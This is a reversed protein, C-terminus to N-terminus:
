TCLPRFCGTGLPLLNGLLVNQKLGRLFDIQNQLAARSLIRTTEQFSAASLFSSTELSTKTIGIFLPEYVVQNAFSTEQQIKMMWQLAVIEGYLLGTEGPELIFVNSTMQRVIIEIHKDSIYVGQGCYIRQINNIVSKQLNQLYQLIPMQHHEKSLLSLQRFSYKSKKRAEFIEEIKPIGQVIDGTKSQQYFVRCIPQNKSLIDGHHRHLISQDNLLHINAKRFLVNQQTKAILQGSTFTSQNTFLREGARIFDGLQMNRKQFLTMNQRSCTSTFDQNLSWYNLNMMTRQNPFLIPRFKRINPQFHGTVLPRCYCFIDSLTLCVPHDHIIEGESFPLYFRIFFLKELCRPHWEKQFIHLAKKQFHGRNFWGFDQTKFFRLTLPHTKELVRDLSSGWGYGKYQPHLSMLSIQFKKRYSCIFIFPMDDKLPEFRLSYRKNTTKTSLRRNHFRQLVTKIQTFIHFNPHISQPTFHVFGKQHTHFFHFNDSKSHRCTCVRDEWPLYIKKFVHKRGMVCHNQYRQPILFSPSFRLTYNHLNKPQAKELQHFGDELTSSKKSIYEVYFNEFDRSRHFRHTKVRKMGLQKLQHIKYQHMFQTEKKLVCIHYLPRKPRKQSFRMTFNKILACNQVISAYAKISGDLRWKQLKGSLIQCNFPFNKNHFFSNELLTSGETLSSPLIKELFFSAKGNSLRKRKGKKKKSSLPPWLTWLANTFPRLRTKKDVFTKMYTPWQHTQFFNEQDGFFNWRDKTSPQTFTEFHFKQFHKKFFRHHIFLTSLDSNETNKLSKNLIFIERFGQVFFLSYFTSPLSPQCFLTTMEFLSHILGKKQQFKKMINQYFLIQLSVLFQCFQGNPDCSQHDLPSSIQLRKFGEVFHIPFKQQYFFVRISSFFGIKRQRKQQFRDIVFPIRISLPYFFHMFFLYKHNSVNKWHMLVPQRQINQRHWHNPRNSFFQCRDFFLLSFISFLKKQSISFLLNRPNQNTKKLPALFGINQSDPLIKKTQISWQKHTPVSSPAKRDQYIGFFKIHGQRNLSLVCTNKQFLFNKLIGYQPFESYTNKSTSPCYHVANINIQSLVKFSQSKLYISFLQFRCDGYERQLGMKWTQFFIRKQGTTGLLSSSIQLYGKNKFFISYIGDDHDRLYSLQLNDDVIHIDSGTLSALPQLYVQLFAVQSNVLDLKKLFKNQFPRRQNELSNNNMWQFPQGALIWFEGLGQVCNEIMRKNINKEIFILNEFHIEGSLPSLVEHENEFADETELFPIEALLQSKKVFENQRAYLLTIKQFVMHIEFFANKQFNNEVKPPYHFSVIKTFQKRLKECEQQRRPYIYSVKLHFIGSNKTLYAIQGQLNRILLGYCFSPYHIQGSFPAYTQDLLRGTFVGGTHFTRMTLQTGPEGISQAALIGVAEGISVFQGEALNWGYCLQCLFKSSQCTLPSRVFVKKRYSCIKQSLSQSIEQNKSGLICGSDPDRINEALVRGVLRQKLPLIEKNQDYLSKLFIGRPQTLPTHSFCDIQSIVVHHAVDVLRRTLYGSAATRLATDVIGKRAGSCSILYETLTLGERFNSRIPFDIIKGQPDAMLGRMGVLQRIQSINGRAGSFAMLYVPNLLDSSQFSQLVQYKVKESTRHWIDLIRQYHEIITLNGSVLQLDAEFISKEAAQLIASKSPPIKLDEISISFGAETASHFGLFKLRELFKLLRSQGHPSKKFFWQLFSQFQRKDFCRHFFVTTTLRM